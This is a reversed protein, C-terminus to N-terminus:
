EKAGHQKLIRMLEKHEEASYSVAYKKAHACVNMGKNDTANVDAGYQILLKASQPDGAVMLPTCGDKDKFNPNAGGALLAAMIHPGEERTTAATHLPTRGDTISVNPSAGQQLLLQTCQADAGILPYSGRKDRANPNEGRQLLRLLTRPMGYAAAAALPTESFGVSVHRDAGAIVLAEGIADYDSVGVPHYEGPYAGSITRQLMSPTAGRQSLNRRRPVFLRQIFHLLSLDKEQQYQTNPDAGRNLASIVAPVDVRYTATSLASDLKAQRAAHEYAGGVVVVGILLVFLTLYRWLLRKKM